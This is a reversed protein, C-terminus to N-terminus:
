VKDTGRKVVDSWSVASPGDDSRVYNGKLISSGVREQSSSEEETDDLSSIHNYGLVVDRFKRFLNGQLPKTFFDALMKETPCYKVKIGETELRDKIWFYRNDMHKTKQGSSRKGNEEIKIASQNDQYLINEILFFGQAELFMRGWIMNPMYDSVGVIEGETSSKTNLKQKQCKTLFVGWGFSACGGTHSKCDDHVGYSVDVWSKMMELNDAGLTLKLDLTGRLYQLVRKLKIWDDEDPNCVRTCLFGVATQIDLRCRRSIFLLSAVVSHFNDAKKESLKKSDRTEFLKSKAPSAASRIIDDEFDAIAKLIHKKMGITVKGKRFRMDMGLFEHNSGRTKSMTGFKSEIKEIVKDVVKPDIHSIKNDDVYWCITCQKGDIEANAVCLDYPNLIFGMDKLTESYLEYWLLASQVCGYLAKDLQVYLVKKGNEYTVFAELTPDIKCFLDVEPGTIKMIVEDKMRANLYAGQIDTTAVDRGQAADVIASILLADQSVTPSATEEKTYLGKQVKGNYVSRGKLVPNEPTHGRNIKEEIMNIMHAAKKKQEYSLDEAKRGHFTRYDMLQKFEALLKLEAEKGYKKIGQRATMQAFVFSTSFRELLDTNGSVHYEDWAQRFFMDKGEQPLDHFETQLFSFSTQKRERKGRGLNDGTTTNFYEARREREQERTESETEEEEDSDELVDEVLITERGIEAQAGQNEDIVVQIQPQEVEEQIVEHTVEAGPPAIAEDVNANGLNVVFPNPGADPMDPLVPEPIIGEAVNADDMAAIADDDAIAQGPRWEYKLMKSARYPQKQNKGLLEVRAIVEDTPPLVSVVRGDIKAGTELSMFNYRGQIKRPGLVLAPITRSRMTNTIRESIHLQVYQGFEYKLDNFDIHPLNDIINRPTLGAAVSDKTGFANLFENGQDVMERVMVRPICHYPMAHTVSRTEHKQTQVSREIEPVHQDTGCDKLRVPLIENGVKTFENDAHLEVIRFGRAHYLRFVDNLQNVISFKSRSIPFSVTRYDIRRSITHFVTVGNVFFFDACLTVNKLDEYLDKPLQIIETDRVRPAAQYRTRGKIPPLPPGYIKHSRRVDGVTLPCNRILNDKVVRVFKDEAPHNVNRNLVIADDAKKIERQKFNQKNSSVTNLFSFAQRLKIVDVKSADFAYLGPAFLTFKMVHEDSIHVFFANETESDLTVRFQETILALSLINAPCRENHWVSISGFDGKQHTDLTGGSSILRLCEGDTTPGVNELYKKNHFINHTSESDLLIWDPNLNSDTDYHQNLSIGTSPSSVEQGTGGSTNNNRRPQDTRPVRNTPTDATADLPCEAQFHGKLGCTRCTINPYFSNNTGKCHTRTGIGVEPAQFFTSGGSGQSSSVPGDSEYNNLLTLVATKTKPYQDNGLLYDNKLKARLQGYRGADARKLIVTVELEEQIAKRLRNRVNALAVTDMGKKDPSTDIHKENEAAVLTSLKETETKGWLYMTGRKALINLEKTVTQIFTDNPTAGQKLQGIRLIQDDLAWSPKQIMDFNVMIDELIGLLWIPDGADESAQFDEKSRVKGRTLTSMNGMLLSFLANKNEALIDTKQMWKKINETQVTVKWEFKKEEVTLDVPEPIIPDEKKRLVHGIDKGQPWGIIIHRYIKDLFDDFITKSGGESPSKLVVLGPVETARMSTGAETM